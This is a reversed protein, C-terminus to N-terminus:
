KRYLILNEWNQNLIELFKNCKTNLLDCKFIISKVKQLIHNASVINTVYNKFLIMSSNFLIKIKDNNKILKTFHCMNSSKKIVLGSILRFFSLSVEFNLCPCRPFNNECTLWKFYLNAYFFLTILPMSGEDMQSNQTNWILYNTVSWTESRKTGQKKNM